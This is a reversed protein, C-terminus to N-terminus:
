LRARWRREAEALCDRRLTGECWQYVLAPAAGIRAAISANPEGSLHAVIASIVTERAHRSPPAKTQQLGPIPEPAVRKPAPKVPLRAEIEPMLWIHRM